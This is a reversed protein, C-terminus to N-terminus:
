KLEEMLTVFRPLSKIPDLDTDNEIWRRHGFGAAVAKELYSVGSELHGLQSYFCAIGYVTYPDDPQLRFAREAWRIAREKEGLALLSQAGLYWSRGDEPSYRVRQEARRTAQGYAVQARETLGLGVYTMGLLAPAQCDERDVQAVM